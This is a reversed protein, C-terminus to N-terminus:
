DKTTPLQEHQPGKRGQITYMFVAMMNNKDNTSAPLNNYQNIWGVQLSIAKTFQYGATASIRNREFNPAENNFFIEDFVSVFATNAVFKPHNIPVLANLRYRFRNRYDGNLWRQEIRVRNEFKIRDLYALYTFQEWLRNEKTTSGADVDKYNYTTYRGTGILASFNNTFNYSVGGKVEYYYFQKYLMENTRTQLETYGGWQHEVSGPLVVTILGWSGAKDYSQAFGSITVVSLAIIFFFRKFCM